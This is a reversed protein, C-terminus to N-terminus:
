SIIENAHIDSEDDLRFVSKISFLIRPVVFRSVRDIVRAFMIQIGMLGVGPWRDREIWAGNKWEEDCLERGLRSVMSSFLVGGFSRGTWKGGMNLLM